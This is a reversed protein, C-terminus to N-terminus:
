SSPFNERRKKRNKLKLNIEDTIRISEKYNDFLTMVMEYTFADEFSDRYPKTNKLKSLHYDKMLKVCQSWLTNYKLVSNM